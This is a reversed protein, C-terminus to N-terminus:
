MDTVKNGAYDYYVEYIPSGNMGTSTDYEGLEINGKYLNITASRAEYVQVLRNEPDIEGQLIAEEIVDEPSLYSPSIITTDDICEEYNGDEDYSAFIVEYITLENILNIM